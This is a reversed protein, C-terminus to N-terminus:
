DKHSLRFRQGPAVNPAAVHLREGDSGGTRGLLMVRVREGNERTVWHEEYSRDVAEPPLLVAGTREPLWLSLQARLGGRHPSVQDRIELEVAIKRTEPDFRPNTRYVSAAVEQGIDPLRLRISDGSGPGTLAAYQEPTLAFPVLLASFDAVEGVKEGERVWQGPEVARSTVLWDSPARIRTRALREQLVKQKVELVRLAEKNDRLTQELSDLQSASANNRRALETYRKVERQDFAIQNRLREQEVAVQELELRIFTDDLRAFIGDKGIAGGIDRSVAETRGSTEAVLPLTARARTFGTLMTERVAPEATALSAHPQAIADSTVSLVAFFMGGVGLATRLM